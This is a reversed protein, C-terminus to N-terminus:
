QDKEPTIPAAAEGFTLMSPDFDFYREGVMGSDPGGPRAGEKAKQALTEATDDLEETPAEDITGSIEEGDQIKGMATEVKKVLEPDYALAYARPTGSPYNKDDLEELWLFVHGKEKMLLNPEVVRAWHMRFHRPPESDTPLGRLEGISHYTWLIMACTAGTALAKLTLPVRTGILIVLLLAAVLAYAGATLLITVTM